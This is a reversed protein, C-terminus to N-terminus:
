QPSCNAVTGFFFNCRLEFQAVNENFNPQSHVNAKNKYTSEIHKKLDIYFFKLTEFFNFHLVKPPATFLGGGGG